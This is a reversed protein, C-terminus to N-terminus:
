KFLKTLPAFLNRFFELVDDGAKKLREKFTMRQPKANEEETVSEEIEAEDAYDFPRIFFHSPNKVGNKDVFDEVERVCVGWKANMASICEGNGLYVAAHSKWVVIDGEKAEAMDSIVTGFSEAEDTSNYESTSNGFTIGFNGLVYYVFGSCDFKEPGKSAYQYGCGDYEVAFAAVDSGIVPETGIVGFSLTGIIIAAAIVATSSKIIKMEDEM